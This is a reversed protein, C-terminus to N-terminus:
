SYCTGVVTCNSFLVVNFLVKVVPKQKAYTKSTQRSSYAQTLLKTNNL